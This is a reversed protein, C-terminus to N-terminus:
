ETRIGKETVKVHENRVSKYTRKRESESVREAKGKGKV